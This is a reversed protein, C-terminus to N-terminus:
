QISITKYYFSMPPFSAVIVDNRNPSGCLIYFNNEVKCVSAEGKDSPMESLGSVSNNLTDFKFIKKTSGNYGGFIYCNTGDSCACSHSRNEPLSGVKTSTNTTTDFKVIDSLFSRGDYGGFIYCDKGVACCSTKEMNTPLSGVRAVENTLTDFKFVDNYFNDTDNSSNYYFGGFIFIDTGVACCSTFARPSNELNGVRTIENTLTDFKFIDSSFTNYEGQVYGGFLYCNTGVSCSSMCSRGRQGGNAIEEVEETVVNFRHIGMNSDNTDGGFIYCNSGVSCATAAVAVTGAPFSMKVKANISDSDYNCVMYKLSSNNLYLLHKNYETKTPTPLSKTVKMFNLLKDFVTYLNNDEGIHIEQIDSANVPKAKVYGLKTDTAQYVKKAVVEGIKYTKSM